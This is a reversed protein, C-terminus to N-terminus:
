LVLLVFDVLILVFCGLRDLVVFGVCWVCCVFVLLCGCYFWM